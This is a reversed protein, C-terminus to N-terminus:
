EGPVGSWESLLDGSAACRHPWSRGRVPRQPFRKLGRIPDVLRAPVSRVPAATSPDVESATWAGYGPRKVDIQVGGDVSAVWLGLDATGYRLEDQTVTVRRASGFLRLSPRVAAIAVPVWAASVVLTVASVTGVASRRCWRLHRVLVEGERRRPDLAVSSGGLEHLHRHRGRAVPLSCSLGPELRQRSRGFWRVVGSVAVIRSPRCSLWTARHGAMFRIVRRKRFVCDSRELRVEVVLRATLRPDRPRGAAISALRRRARSGAVPVESGAAM